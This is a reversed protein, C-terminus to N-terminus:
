SRSRRRSRDNVYSFAVSGVTLVLGAVILINNLPNPLDTLLLALGLPLLVIATIGDIRRSVSNSVPLWHSRRVELYRAVAQELHLELDKKAESDPLVAHLDAEAKLSRLSRARRGVFANASVLIAAGTLVWGVVQDWEM